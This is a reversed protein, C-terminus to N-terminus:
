EPVGLANVQQAKEVSGKSVFLTLYPFPDRTKDNAQVAKRYKELDNGANLLFAFQAALTNVDAAALAWASLISEVLNLHRVIAFRIIIAHDATLTIKKNKIKLLSRLREDDKFIAELFALRNGDAAIDFGKRQHVAECQEINLSKIFQIVASTRDTQNLTWEKLLHITLERRSREHDSAFVKRQLILQWGIFIFGICTVALTAVQLNVATIM